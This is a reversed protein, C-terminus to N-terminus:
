RDKRVWRRERVALVLAVACAVLVVVWSRTLRDLGQEPAFLPVHRGIPGVFIVTLLVLLLGPAVVEAPEDIRSRALVALTFGLLWCGALQLGLVRDVPQRAAWGGLLVAGAGLPVAAALARVVVQRWRGLPCARVVAASPEDLASAAAGGVVVLAVQLLVLSPGAALAVGGATAGAASVALLAPWPAARLLVALV